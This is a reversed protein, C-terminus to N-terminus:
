SQTPDIVQLREAVAAANLERDSSVLVIAERSDDRTSTACALQIADAGRLAYDRILAIARMPIAVHIEVIRFLYNVDSNLQELASDRDEAAVSTDRGRRMIAASVEIQALRSIIIPDAGEILATVRDTGLERRYAKV